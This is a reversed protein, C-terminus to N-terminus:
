VVLMTVVLASGAPTRILLLAFQPEPASDAPLVLDDRVALLIEGIRLIGCWTLGLIAAERYWGWFLAASMVSLLISLPLAPHHDYPEDELWCFALDWASVLQKQIVPRQSAIANITEAYKGYAKGARYM